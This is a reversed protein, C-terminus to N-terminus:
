RDGGIGSRAASLSRSKLGVSSPSWTTDMQGGATVIPYREVSSPLQGRRWFSRVNSMLGIGCSSGRATVPVCARRQARDPQNPGVPWTNAENSDQIVVAPHARNGGRRLRPQAPHTGIDRVASPRGSGLSRTPRSRGMSRPRTSPLLRARPGRDTDGRRIPVPRGGYPRRPRLRRAQGRALRAM